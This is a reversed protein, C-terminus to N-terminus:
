LRLLLCGFGFCRNRPGSFHGKRGSPKRKVIKGIDPRLRKPFPKLDLWTYIGAPFPWNWETPIAAVKDLPLPTGNKWLRARSTSGAFESGSIYVDNGVVSISSASSKNKGDTM